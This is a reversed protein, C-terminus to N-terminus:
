LIPLLGLIAKDKVKKKFKSMRLGLLAATRRRQSQWVLSMERIEGIELPGPPLPVFNLSKENRLVFLKPDMKTQTLKPQDQLDSSKNHTLFSKLGIM